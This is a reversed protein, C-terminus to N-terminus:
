EEFNIKRGAKNEVKTESKIGTYKGKYAASLWRGTAQERLKAIKEKAMEAVPVIWESAARPTIGLDNATEVCTCIEAGTYGEDNPMESYDVEPFKKRYIEWIADREEKTPLDFFWIGNKFRRKLEPPLSAESNCTAVVFIEGKAAFNEFTRLVRDTNAESAGVYKDKTSGLDWRVVPVPQTGANALATACMSKGAGPVGVLVMGRVKYDQMWTLLKGFMGQAVGSSDSVAGGGAGALGKELEDLYVFLKIPSKGRMLLKAYEKVGEEGGIDELQIKTDDLTLGPIANITSKWRAYLAAQDLGEKTVSLSVIQEVAFTNLGRTADVAAAVDQSKIRKELGNESVLLKIIESREAETPLPDNIRHIDNQLEIPITFAPGLLIIMNQEVKYKDRLNLLGQMPGLDSIYKHASHMVVVVNEVQARYLMGMAESPNASAIEDQGALIKGVIGTKAAMENVAFFGRQIDHGVVCRDGNAVGRITDQTANNDTTEVVLIPCGARRAAKLSKALATEVVSDRSNAM